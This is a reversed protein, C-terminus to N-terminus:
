HSFSTKRHLPYKLPSHCRFSGLKKQFLSKLPLLQFGESSILAPFVTM